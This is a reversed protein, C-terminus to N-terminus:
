ALDTREALIASPPQPAYREQLLTAIIVTIPIAFFVGTIGGIKAGTFLAVLVLAPHLDIAAGFLAPAVIHAQVQAIVLYIILVWLALWPNVTLASLIALSLAVAGGVYPIIEIFGGLLAITFAHPIRLLALAIGFALGFYLAIALQAWVWRTLRFRLRDLLQQLQTQYAPPTFKLVLRESLTGDTALFYALVLIVLLNLTLDGLSVVTSLLSPLITGLLATVRQSLATLSPLWSDLWTITTLRTIVDQLLAPGHLRLQQTQEDIVPTMLDGLTSLLAILGVYIGLVTVGRPVRHQALTDALPRLALSLLFAGFLIAGIQVLIVFYTIAWWSAVALALLALWLHLRIHQLEM